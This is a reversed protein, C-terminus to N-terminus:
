RWRERWQEWWCIHRRWGNRRGLSVLVVEACRCFSHCCVEGCKEGFLGFGHCCVEGCEKEGFLGFGHCCCVEEGLCVLVM